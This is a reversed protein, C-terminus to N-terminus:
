ELTTIPLLLIEDPVYDVITPPALLVADPVYENTATTEALLV